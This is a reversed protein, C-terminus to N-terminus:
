WTGDCPVRGLHDGRSGSKSCTLNDGTRMIPKKQFLFRLMNGDVVGWRSCCSSWDGIHPVCREQHCPRLLSM